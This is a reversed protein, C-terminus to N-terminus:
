GRSARFGRWASSSSLGVSPTGSPDVLVLARVQGPHAVAYSWAIQGGFSNGALAFGDLGLKSRFADLFALYTENRYDDQRNPGTLGFGPLDMRIVRFRSRLADSWADWTHLSSGMGHLLVLPAGM